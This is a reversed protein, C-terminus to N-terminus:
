FGLMHPFHLIIFRILLIATAARAISTAATYTNGTAGATASDSVPADASLIDGFFCYSISAPLDTSSLNVIRFGSSDAANCRVKRTTSKVKSSFCSLPTALNKISGAASGVGHDSLDCIVSGLDTVIPGPSVLVISM